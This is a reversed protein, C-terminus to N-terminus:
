MEPVGTDFWNCEISNEACAECDLSDFKQGSHDVSHKTSNRLIMCEVGAVGILLNKLLVSKIRRQLHEPGASIAQM